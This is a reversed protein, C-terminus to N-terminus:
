DGILRAATLSFLGANAGVDIFIMGPELYHALFDLTGIEFRSPRFMARAIASDLPYDFVLQHDLHFRHLGTNTPLYTQIKWIMRGLKYDLWRPVPLWPPYKLM